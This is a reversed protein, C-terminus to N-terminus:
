FLFHLSRIRIVKSSTQIVPQNEYLAPAKSCFCCPQGAAQGPQSTLAQTASVHRWTACAHCGCPQQSPMTSLLNVPRGFRIWALRQPDQPLSPNRRTPEGATAPLAAAHGHVVAAARRLATASASRPEAPCAPPMPTRLTACRIRYPPNPDGSRHPQLPTGHFAVTLESSSPPVTSYPVTPCPLCMLAYRMRRRASHAGQGHCLAALSPPAHSPTSCRCHHQTPSPARM